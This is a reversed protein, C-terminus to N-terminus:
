YGPYQEVPLNKAAKTLGTIDIMSSQDTVAARPTVIFVIGLIVVASTLLLALKKIV